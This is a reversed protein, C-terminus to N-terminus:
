RDAEAGRDTHAILQPRPVPKFAFREVELAFVLDELREAVQVRELAFLDSDQGAFGNWSTTAAKYGAERVLAAIASTLYREAGGNPYSFMTVPVLLERELRAKSGQIERWADDTGANPLNPHTLTHSGITMGLRQMEALHDWRLMPSVAEADAGSAHRLQERLRERAPISVSKFLRTLAGVAHRREMASRLSLEISADATSLRLSRDPHRRILERLESPWFPEGGGVCAAAIYFTAPLGHRSLTRAAELNDAYGDDFTIAVCNRPLPRRSDLREAIEPLPLVAYHAALYKIHQEFAAPSICISPDAYRHGEADCIAHYRLIAVQRSPLL